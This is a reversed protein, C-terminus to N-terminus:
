GSLCSEIKSIEALKARTGDMSAKGAGSAEMTRAQERTTAAAMLAIEKAAIENQWTKALRDLDALRTQQAPNDSTLQKVKALHQEYAERGAKFPELFKDDGAVLYGRVGTEQNVMGLLIGNLEELVDYTHSNWGVTTRATSLSTMTMYGFGAVAVVIASFAAILKNRVKMDGLVAM